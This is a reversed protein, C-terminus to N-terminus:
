ETAPLGMISISRGDPFGRSVLLFTNQGHGSIYLQVTGEREGKQLSKIDEAM